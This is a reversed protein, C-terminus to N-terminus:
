IMILQLFESLYSSCSRSTNYRDAGQLFRITNTELYAKRVVPVRRRTQAQTGQQRSVQGDVAAFMCSIGLADFLLSFSFSRNTVNVRVIIENPYNYDSGLQCTGEVDLVLFAEYPQKTRSDVLVEPTFPANQLKPRKAKPKQPRSQREVQLKPPLLDRSRTHPKLPIPDRSLMLPVFPPILQFRRPPAPPPSESLARLPSFSSSSVFVELTTHRRSGVHSFVNEHGPSCLSDNDSSSTSSGSHRSRCPRKYMTPAYLALLIFLLSVISVYIVLNETYFEFRKVFDHMISPMQKPFLLIKGLRHSMAVSSVALIPASPLNQVAARARTTLILNIGDDM